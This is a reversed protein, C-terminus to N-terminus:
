QTKVENKAKEASAGPDGVQFRSSGAEKSVVTLKPREWFSFQTSSSSLDGSVRPVPCNGHWVAVRKEFPQSYPLYGLRTM